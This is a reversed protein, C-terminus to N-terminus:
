AVKGARQVVERRRQRGKLDIIRFGLQILDTNQKALLM